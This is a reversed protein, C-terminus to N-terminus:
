VYSVESYNWALTKRSFWASYDRVRSGDATVSGPLILGNSVFYNGAKKLVTNSKISKIPKITDENFDYIVENAEFVEFPAGEFTKIAPYDIIDKGKLSYLPANLLTEFTYYDDKPALKLGTLSMFDSVQGVSTETFIFYGHIVKLKM